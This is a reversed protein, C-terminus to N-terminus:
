SSVAMPDPPHTGHRVPPADIPGSPGLYPHAPPSTRTVKKAAIILEGDRRALPGDVVVWADRPPMTGPPDVTVYLPTADAICCAVFFRTVQFLDSATGHKHMVFGLLRVRVGPVIGPQPVPGQAAMVHAYSIGSLPPGVSVLRKAVTPSTARREAAAAGLEAHPVAIVLLIPLLLVVIGLGEQSGLAQDGRRRSAIISAALATALAGFPVVWTTRAGLYRDADGSLWIVTFFVAWAALAFSRAITVPIV